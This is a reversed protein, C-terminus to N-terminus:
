GAFSLAHLRRSLEEHSSGLHEVVRDFRRHLEHEDDECCIVLVLGPEPLTNLWDRELAVAVALHLALITKGVGGDGSILTVNKLPVRDRVVWECEPAPTHQWAAINIFPLPPSGPGPTPKAEGGDGIKERASSVARPIDDYRNQWREDQPGGTANMWARLMNVAAGDSMGSKLLMMALRAISDHYNEGRTINAILEEWGAPQKAGPPERDAGNAKHSTQEGATKQSFLNEAEASTKLAALATDLDVELNADITAIQCLRPKQKRHWSGPWRIPHCIPDNSPDGGVLRGAIDRAQKLKALEATNRAPVRLRWHLHLKDHVEGTQPDTWTGGSYVTVTTPGIISELKDKAEQPHQDCEVSLAM